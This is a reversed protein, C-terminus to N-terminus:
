LLEKCIKIEEKFNEYFANCMEETPFEFIYNNGYCTNSMTIDGDWRFFSYVYRLDEPEWPKGLGSEDGYIKWYANRCVLLKQLSVLLEGKFGLDNRVSARDLLVKACEEYTKPYKPKIPKIPKLIINGNDIRDFEYGDTIKYELFGDKVIPWMSHEMIFISNDHDSQEKELNKNEKYFEISDNTYWGFDYNKSFGFRVYYKMDSVDEDWKMEDVIGPCGDETDIVKDGVKFPYKELFEELSFILLEEDGFVYVGGKIEKDGDITYYFYNEDGYLNHANVGGFMELIEIVEKGRTAHGKIALKKIM